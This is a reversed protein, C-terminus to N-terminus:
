HNELSILIIMQEVVIDIDSSKANM